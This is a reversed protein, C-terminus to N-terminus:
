GERSLVITQDARQPGFSRSVGDPWVVVISDVEGVEGLGIHIAPDSSSCYSYAARVVRTLSREGVQVTVVAGLADRGSEEVVRVRLWHARDAVENRLLYVPADRNVVVIDVGGDGDLDGFAAARSTGILPSRTGGRPLVEAFRGEGTGRLLVNSEAFPDDTEPELSLVARGNSYYIDLHGDNDFDQM